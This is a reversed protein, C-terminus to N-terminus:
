LEDGHKIFYELFSALGEVIAEILKRGKEPTALTPDGLPIGTKVEPHEQLNRIMFQQYKSYKVQESKQIKDNRVMEPYMVFAMSTEFEDSHGPVPAMPSRDQKIIAKSIDPPIVDWYDILALIQDTEYRAQSAAVRLTPTNNGHGNLIVVKELGHRKLSQCVDFIVDIMTQPRLSLSGAYKLHMPSIGITLPPTVLVKPYLKEAVLRAVYLASAADHQLPLHYGHQETSGVPIIAVQTQGLRQAIEPWTMESLLVQKM